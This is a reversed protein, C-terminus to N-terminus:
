EDRRYRWEWREDDHFVSRRVGAGRRRATENGFRSLVLSFVADALDAPTEACKAPVRHGFACVISRSHPRLHRLEDKCHVLRQVTVDVVLFKRRIGREKSM